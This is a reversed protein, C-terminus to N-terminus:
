RGPSTRGQFQRPHLRYRFRAHKRLSIQWAGALTSLKKLSHMHTQIPPKLQCRHILWVVLSSFNTIMMLKTISGFEISKKLPEHDCPTPGDGKTARALLEILCM